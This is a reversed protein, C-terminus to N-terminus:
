GDHPNMVEERISKGLMPPAWDLVRMLNMAYGCRREAQEEGAATLYDVIARRLLM